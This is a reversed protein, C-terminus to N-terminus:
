PQEEGHRFVAEPGENSGFTFTLENCVYPLTKVVSGGLVTGTLFQEQTPKQYKSWDAPKERFWGFDSIVVRMGINSSFMAREILSGIKEFSPEPLFVEFAVAGKPFYDSPKIYRILCTTGTANAFIPETVNKPSQFGLAGPHQAVSSLPHFTLEPTAANMLEAFAGEDLATSFLDGPIYLFPKCEHRKVLTRYQLSDPTGFRLPGYIIEFRHCDVIWM